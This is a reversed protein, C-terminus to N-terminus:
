HCNTAILFGSVKLLASGGGLLVGYIHMSHDAAEQLDLVMMTLTSSSAASGGRPAAAADAAAADAAAADAAAADTKAPAMTASESTAASGVSAELKEERRDEVLARDDVEMRGEVTAAEVEMRGEITAAEVEMRGEVTAAEAHMRGEVAVTEAHVARDTPLTTACHAEVDMGFGEDAGLSSKLRHIRREEDQLQEVLSRVRKMSAAAAPAPAPAPALSAAALSTEMPAQSFPADSSSPPPTSADLAPAPGPAPAPAPALAPASTMSLSTMSLPTPMPAPVNTPSLASAPAPVHVPALAPLGGERQVARTKTPDSAQTQKRPEYLDVIYEVGRVQIRTSQDGALFAAELADQVSQDYPRFSQGLRCLWKAAAAHPVSSASRAAIPPPAAVIRSPYLFAKATPHQTLFLVTGPPVECALALPMTAPETQDARQIFSANAGVRTASVLGSASVTISLQKRSVRKDTIGLDDRGVEVTGVAPLSVSVGGADLLEFTSM